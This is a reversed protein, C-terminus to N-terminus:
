PESGEDDRVRTSRALARRLQLAISAELIIVEDVNWVGTAPAVVSSEASTATVSCAEVGDVAVACRRIPRVGPIDLLSGSTGADPLVWPDISLLSTLGAVWGDVHDVPIQVVVTHGNEVRVSFSDVLPAISVLHNGRDSVEVRGFM